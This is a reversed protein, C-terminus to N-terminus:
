PCLVSPTVQRQKLAGGYNVKTYELYGSAGQALRKPACFALRPRLSPRLPLFRRRNRLGSILDESQAQDWTSRTSVDLRM